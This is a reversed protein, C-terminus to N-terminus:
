ALASDVYVPLNYLNGFPPMAGLECDPFIARLDKEEALHIEKAGIVGAAEPIYAHEPAPLVLMINRGDAIVMVVKALLRGPIHESAAVDQATFVKPHHQLEYAVGKERLYTELKDKCKM